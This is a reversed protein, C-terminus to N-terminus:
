VRPRSASSARARRGRRLRECGIAPCTGSAARGASPSGSERRAAAAGVRTGHVVLQRRQPAPRGARCRTRQSARRHSGCSVLRQQELDRPRSWASRRRLPRTARRSPWRAAHLGDVADAERDRAALREAEDALLPQPLVVSPRATQQAQMSGVAPWRRTRRRRGSEAARGRRMRRQAARMCITKWSGYADSLGRMVTPSIM